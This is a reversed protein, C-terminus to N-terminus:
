KHVIKNIIKHVQVCIDINQSVFNQKDNKLDKLFNKLNAESAIQRSINFKKSNKQGFLKKKNKRIIFNDHYNRSINRLSIIDDKNDIVTIGFFNKNDKKNSLYVEYNNKNKDAFCLKYSNKNKHIKTIKLIGFIDVLISFLHFGFNYLTGGGAKSNNKWSDKKGLTRSEFVWKIMIKSNYLKKKQILKKFKIIAKIKLFNLDFSTLLKKKKIKRAILQADSFNYSLPKQGFFPINKLILYKIIKSQILPPVALVVFDPKYIKITKKWNYLFNVTSHKLNKKNLSCIGILNINKNNNLIPYLINLGYNAGIILASYRKIIM